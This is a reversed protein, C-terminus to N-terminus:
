PTFDVEAPMRALLAALLSSAQDLDKLSIVECPSHMYRCPVSVLGAAVGARTIQIANADTGTGGPAGEIQIAIKARKAAAVIMDFLVPNINAGRSVIPGKNCAFDGARNKDVGPTDTAHGVDIAIGAHPAIGFASTRAGRLGVEEQVTSVGFVAVKLKKGKLKRLTEAVVFAGMRDDFARATVLQSRLRTLGVDFTIPDGTSVVKQADKKNKAGIDVWLQHIKLAKGQEDKDTLHIAKRGVVGPVPGKPGHITVRQAVAVVPDIGGIQRVYIYGENTIHNVMLGIEDVHGALMVRLPASANLAAIVNGHVDTRVSDAFQGMRERMLKQAPQEYGSPSPTAVLQELFALADKDMM